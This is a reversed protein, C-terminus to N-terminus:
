SAARAVKALKVQLVRKARFWHVRVAGPALGLIEATDEYSRGELGHLKAVERLSPTLEDLAAHVADARPNATNQDSEEIETNSSSEDVRDDLTLGATEVKTWDRGLEKVVMRLMVKWLWSVLKRPDRVTHCHDLFVLMADQAVDNPDVASYPLELHRLKRRTVCVALSRISGRMPLHSDKFPGGPTKLLKDFVDRREEKTLEPRCLLSYLHNFGIPEAAQVTV